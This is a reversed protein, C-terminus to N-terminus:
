CAVEDHDHSRRDDFKANISGERISGRIETTQCAVEKQTIAGYAQERFPSYQGLM